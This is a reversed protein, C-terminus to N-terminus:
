SATAVRISDELDIDLGSLFQEVSLNLKIKLSYGRYVTVRDIMHSAIMKKASMSATDFAKAWDLLDDYQQAMQTSQTESATLEQELAAISVRLQACKQKEAEIAANLTEPSFASQGALANVIEGALRQYNKDAATYDQRLKKLVAQKEATNEQCCVDLVEQRSLRRVRTFIFRLIRIIMDDLKAVTYGTQGDCDGHTRSKTQCVYRTRITYENDKQRGYKGSTTVCLRAGCHGCFVFGSLLSKGRTNHPASRTANNKASRANMMDQVAYFTQNDIVRLTEITESRFDGSRLVGIYLCNKLIGRITSPHWNVGEKNKIGQSNLHNAIRQPGYGETRALRFMLRVIAAEDEQIALDNVPQKRKNTRGTHVFSYGYPRIGGTFCGAETLIHLSNATRISIKESEGDAQWFRIYNTLKDAHTDIRQEGEECSWVRIGNRVFWELVFPTEDAIRGLRDFMFVLLIDFKHEKAYQKALQIKDRNEARVKHGSVGEEQLECVITWGQKECFERCAIRQMPIDAENKDTFYLQKGTSVRYICLARTGPSIWDPLDLRFGTTKDFCYNTVTSTNM